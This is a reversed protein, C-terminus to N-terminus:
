HMLITTTLRIHQQRFYFKPRELRVGLHEYPTLAALKNQSSCRETDRTPLNANHQQLTLTLNPQQCTQTSTAGQESPCRPM